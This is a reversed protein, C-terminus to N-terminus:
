SLKLRSMSLDGPKPDAYVSTQAMQIFPTMRPSLITTFAFVKKVYFYNLKTMIAQIHGRIRFLYETCLVLTHVRQDKVLTKIEFERHLYVFKKLIIYELHSFIVNYISYIM